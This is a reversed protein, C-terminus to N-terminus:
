FLSAGLLVPDFHAGALSGAPRLLMQEALVKFLEQDSLHM